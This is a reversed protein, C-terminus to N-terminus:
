NKIAEIIENVTNFAILENQAETYLGNNICYLYNSEIIDRIQFIKSIKSM